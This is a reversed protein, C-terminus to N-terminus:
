RSLGRLIVSQESYFLNRGVGWATKRPFHNSVVLEPYRVVLFPVVIFMFTLFLLIVAKKGQEDM